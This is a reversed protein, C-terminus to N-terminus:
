IEILEYSTTGLGIQEGYSTQVLPDLQPWHKKFINTSGAQRNVLQFTAFDLAVPDSSALVGVDPAIVPSHKNMCDCDKTVNIAFNFFCTKTEKIIARCYEVMKKQVNGSSEDWAIKVAQHPCVALCEGCGYCTEPNITAKNNKLQIADAPCWQACVECGRCQDLIQPLLGSHQALKGGRAALGMGINKLAGGYGTLLHGTFHALGIIVDATKVVGALHARSILGTETPLSIQNEGRLGDGIIIPIGLNAFSFGHKEAMALHDVANSRNGVYLTNTDTLFPKGGAKKIFTILPKLWEPKIYGPGKKEGFHIKLAVLDNKKILKKLGISETLNKVKAAISSDSENDKTRSLYVKM